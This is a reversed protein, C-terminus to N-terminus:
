AYSVEIMTQMPVGLEVRPLFEPLRAIGRSSACFFGLSPRVAGPRYPSSRRAAPAAAASPSRTPPRPRSRRPWILFGGDPTAAPGAPAAGQRWRGFVSRRRVVQVLRRCPSSPRVLNPAVAPDHPRQWQDHQAPHPRTSTATMAEPSRAQAAWSFGYCPIGAGTQGGQAPHFYM